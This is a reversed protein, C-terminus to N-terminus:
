SPELNLFPSDCQTMVIEVCEVGLELPTIGPDEHFPGGLFETAPEGHRSREPGFARDEKVQHGSDDGFDGDEEGVGSEM